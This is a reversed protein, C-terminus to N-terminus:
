MYFVFTAAPRMVRSICNKNLNLNSPVKPIQFKAQLVKINRVNERFKTLFIIYFNLNEANTM